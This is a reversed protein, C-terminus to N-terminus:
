LLEGGSFALPVSITVAVPRWMSATVHRGATM